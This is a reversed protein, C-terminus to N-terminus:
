GLIAFDDSFIVDIEEYTLLNVSHLNHSILLFFYCKGNDEVPVNSGNAVTVNKINFDLKVYNALPKSTNFM